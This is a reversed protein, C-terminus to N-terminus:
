AVLSEAAEDGVETRPLVSAARLRLEDAEHWWSSHPSIPQRSVGLAQPPGRRPQKPWPIELSPSLMITPRKGAKLIAAVEDYLSSMVVNECTQKPKSWTASIPPYLWSGRTTM